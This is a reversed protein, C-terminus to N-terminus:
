RNMTESDFREKDLIPEGTQEELFRVLGALNAFSDQAGDSPNVLVARWGGTQNERWLRLLYAKYDRQKMM